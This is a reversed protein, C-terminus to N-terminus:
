NSGERAVVVPSWSDNWITQAQEVCSVVFKFHYGGDGYRGGSGRFTGVVQVNVTRGRFGNDQIKKSKPCLEDEFDVWTRRDKDLCDLCYFEAWEFGLRYTASMRVVKGDYRDPHHILDCYDVTAVEITSSAGLMPNLSQRSPVVSLFAGLLICAILFKM